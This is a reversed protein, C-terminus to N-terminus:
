ATGGCAAAKARVKPSRSRSSTGPTRPPRARRPHRMPTRPRWGPRDAGGVDSPHDPDSWRPPDRHSSRRAGASRWWLPPPVPLLGLCSWSGSRRGDPSPNRRWSSSAGCRHRARSSGSSRSTTLLDTRRPHSRVAALQLRGGEGVSCHTVTSRAARGAPVAHRLRRARGQHPRRGAPCRSRRRARPEVRLDAAGVRAGDMTARAVSVRQTMYWGWDVVTSLFLFLVTSLLAFEIAASGRKSRRIINMTPRM